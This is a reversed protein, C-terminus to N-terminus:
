RDLWAARDLAFVEVPYGLRPHVTRRDLTFGLKDMVRRSALNAPQTISVVRELGLDDFAFALASRGGETALGRGWVDRRLRWGVEVAPMVEPLFTPYALGVFGVVEGTGRLEACWLGFGHEAWHDRWGAVARELASRDQTTGDGIYRVVELDVHMPVLADIDADSWSRLRLRATTIERVQVHM